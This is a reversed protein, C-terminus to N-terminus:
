RRRQRFNWPAIPEKEAWLGKADRRAREEAEALRRDANYRKFHWAFGEEIM